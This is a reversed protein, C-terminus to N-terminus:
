GKPPLLGQRARAQEIVQQLLDLEESAELGKSELERLRHQEQLLQDQRDLRDCLAHLRQDADLKIVETKQTAEQELSVLVNKLSMNETASMISSFDLAYGALELDMYTRWLERATGSSLVAM